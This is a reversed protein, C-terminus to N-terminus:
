FGVQDWDYVFVQLVMGRWFREEDRGVAVGAPLFSDGPRRTQQNVAIANLWPLGRPRCVEDRIYGLPYAMGIPTLGVADAVEGYTVTRMQGACVKLYEFVEETKAPIKPAENTMDYDKLPHGV